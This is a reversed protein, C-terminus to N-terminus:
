VEFCGRGAAAAPPGDPRLREPAHSEDSRNQEALRHVASETPAMSIPEASRRAPTHNIISTFQGFVYTELNRVVGTLKKLYAATLPIQRKPRELGQLLESILDLAGPARGHWLRWGIREIKKPLLEGQQLDERTGRLSSRATQAVHQVRMSLHRWDLVQRTPGPSAAEGLFRPAKPEM